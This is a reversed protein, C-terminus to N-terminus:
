HRTVYDDLIAIMILLWFFGAGSFLWVRQSSYRVGMFYLIILVAKVIAIALAVLLAARPGLDIRSVWVTVGLLAMLAGFVVFYTSLSVRNESM